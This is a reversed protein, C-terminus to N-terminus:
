DLGLLWHDLPVCRIPAGPLARSLQERNHAIWGRCSFESEFTAFHERSPRFSRDDVLFRAGRRCGPAAVWDRRPSVVAAVWWTRTADLREVERREM